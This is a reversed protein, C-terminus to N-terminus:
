FPEGSSKPAPPSSATASRGSEPKEYAPPPGAPLAGPDTWGEPFGMFAECWGPDLLCGKGPSSRGLHESLPPSTTRKSWTQASANGTRYDRATLTPLLATVLGDGSKASVGARNYNGHVTLTPLLAERLNGSGETAAGRSIGRSADSGILTPLLSSSGSGDIVRALRLPPSSWPCAPMDGHGSPEGCLLCGGDPAQHWTRSSSGARARRASSGTSSGGSDVGSPRPREPESARAEVPQPCSSAPSAVVSCTSPPSFRFELQEFTRSGRRM